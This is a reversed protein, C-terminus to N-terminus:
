AAENDYVVSIWTERKGKQRWLAVWNHKIMHELVRDVLTPRISQERVEDTFDALSMTQM